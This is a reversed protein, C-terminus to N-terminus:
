REMLRRLLRIQGAHYVDHLAVGYIHRFLKEGRPTQLVKEIATRMALHERELLEKDAM